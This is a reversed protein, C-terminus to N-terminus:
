HNSSDDPLGSTDAAKSKKLFYDIQDCIFHILHCLLVMIFLSIFVVGLGLLCVFTNSPIM